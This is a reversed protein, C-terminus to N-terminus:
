SSTAGLQASLNLLLQEVIEDDPTKSSKIAIDAETTTAVMTRINDMDLGSALEWNKKVVFPHLGSARAVAQQNSTNAAVIQAIVELQWALVGLIDPAATGSLRLQRYIEVARKTQGTALTDTLAFASEELSAPTLEDIREVSIAEIGMSLKRLEADLLQQDTGLKDVLHRAAGSTISAGLAPSRKRVFDTAESPKLQGCKIIEAQKKLTKYYTTRKDIKDEVVVLGNGEGVADLIQEIEAALSKNDGLRSVVVLSSSGFLSQGALEQILSPKDIDKGSLKVLQEYDSALSSIAQQRAYSNTGLLLTTV